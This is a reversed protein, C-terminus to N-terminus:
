VLDALVTDALLLGRRTLRLRGGTRDLLGSGVHRDIAGAREIGRKGAALLEEVREIGIGGVLRLGLMLMEGARGDEGLREVETIPPLPGVELYDDLCPTNKWRYGAVHGAAGPGLPWWEDNKWYLLNHRCRRGPRAWNSIEYHEFGAGGLRDIAAEYMEAEVDEEVRKFMGAQLGAALPTGPEYTLAYCSVHAPELAVATELDVLWDDLGQGPIGFILDLNINDIGAARALGVSRVVSAPDHQRQLTELHRAHFSQAGMSIRNVGGAALAAALPETVTEPNAEVTVEVSGGAAAFGPLHEAMAGLLVAWLEPALITPTGGGFFLTEPPRSMYPAAAEIEQILRAVFAPERGRTDVVSYFDCYHCKHRCFPVHIYVGGPGAVAGGGSLRLDAATQPGGPVQLGGSFSTLQAILAM